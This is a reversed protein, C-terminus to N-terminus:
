KVTRATHGYNFEQMLLIAFAFILFNIKAFRISRILRIAIGVSPM